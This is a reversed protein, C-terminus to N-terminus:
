NEKKDSSENDECERQVSKVKQALSFGYQSIDINLSDNEKIIEKCILIKTRIVNGDSFEM